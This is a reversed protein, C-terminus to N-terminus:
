PTFELVTDDPRLEQTWQWSSNNVIIKDYKNSEMNSLLIKESPKNDAKVQALTRIEGGLFYFNSSKIEKSDLEEDTRGRTSFRFGYPTAGHRQKIGRAMEVAKDVDWSDIFMSSQEAVMTGPSYFIVFHKELM